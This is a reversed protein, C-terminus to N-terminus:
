AGNRGGDVPVEVHVVTGRGLSSSIKLDAGIDAARSRMSQLGFHQPGSAASVDFGRGDDEVVLVVRDGHLAVHVRATGAHAHKAANALAERGIGFLHTEVMRTLPLPEDPGDVRIRLGDGNLSDVHRAFTPVLGDGIGEPGWEFIFRRMERQARRTLENVSALAKHLRESRDDDEDDVLKQAARTHLVSSFLAQSVSDHLERAIRRREELARESERRKADALEAASRQGESVVASLVLATLSAVLIYLQTSLTRNDITQKYFVGLEDATVGITVGAIIVTSLTVGPPGFRFAAWILAPFILYTLPAQASVAVISLLTVCGILFFGEPTDMQRLARRPNHLWTLVLPLVVLAGSTDGLFWTRWFTPVESTQIVDGALMSVTGVTASIATAIGVAVIMGGVQSARDLAARPGILRRLLWAGVIIEAMNGAQQGILSGVPFGPHEFLLQGNVILEGVFIGPWWRLGFVYLAAMGLGAPPWIASVSATYRLTQGLKAAGFYATALIAVAVCYRVASSAVLRRWLAEGSPEVAAAIQSESVNGGNHPVPFALTWTVAGAWM